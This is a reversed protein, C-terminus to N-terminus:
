PFTRGKAKKKSPRYFVDVSKGKNEYSANFLTDYWGVTQDTLLDIAQYPTEPTRTSTKM